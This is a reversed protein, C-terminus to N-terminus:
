PRMTTHWQFCTLCTTDNCQHVTPNHQICTRSFCLMHSTIDKFDGPPSSSAHPFLMRNLLAFPLFLLLFLFYTCPFLSLLPNLLSYHSPRLLLLLLLSILSSYQSFRTLLTLLPPPTSPIDPPPCVMETLQDQSEQGMHNQSESEARVSVMCFLRETALLCTCACLQWTSLIGSDCSLTLTRDDM